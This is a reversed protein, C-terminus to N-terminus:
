ESTSDRENDKAGSMIQQYVKAAENADIGNFNVIPMAPKKDEEQAEKWGAQTRLYFITAATSGAEIQEFLHGSAKFIAESRGRLLAEEIAPYEKIRRALTQKSIGFYAGIQTHNLGKGSLEKLKEITADEIKLEEYLKKKILSNDM